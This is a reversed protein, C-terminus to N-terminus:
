LREIRSMLRLSRLMLSSRRMAQPVQSVYKRNPRPRPGIGPSIERHRQWPDAQDGGSRNQRPLCPMPALERVGPLSQPEPCWSQSAALFHGRRRHSRALISAVRHRPTRMNQPGCIETIPPVIGEWSIESRRRGSDPLKYVYGEGQAPPMVDSVGDRYARIGAVTEQKGQFVFQDGVRLDIARTKPPVPEISTATGDRSLPVVLQRVEGGTRARPRNHPLLHCPLDNGAAGWSRM